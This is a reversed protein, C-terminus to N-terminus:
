LRACVCRRVVAVVPLFHRRWQQAISDGAVYTAAKVVHDLNEANVHLVPTRTMKCVDSAYTSSRSDQGEATFGVQAAGLCCWWM